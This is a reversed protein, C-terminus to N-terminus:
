LFIKLQYYSFNLKFLVTNFFVKIKNPFVGAYQKNLRERGRQNHPRKRNTRYAEQVLAVLPLFENVNNRTHAHRVVQTSRINRFHKNSCFLM